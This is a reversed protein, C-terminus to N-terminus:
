WAGARRSRRPGFGIGELLFGRDNLQAVVADDLDDRGLVVGAPSAVQQFRLENGVQRVALAFLAPQDGKFVNRGHQHLRHNRGLVLPEKLM